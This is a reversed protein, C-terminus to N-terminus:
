NCGSATAPCPNFSEGHRDADPLRGFNHPRRGSDLIVERYLDRLEGM